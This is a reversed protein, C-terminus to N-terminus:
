YRAGIGSQYGILAVPLSWKRKKIGKKKEDISQEARFEAIAAGKGASIVTPTIWVREGDPLSRAYLPVEAQASAAISLTIGTLLFYRKM